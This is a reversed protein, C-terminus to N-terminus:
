LMTRALMLLIPEFADSISTEDFSIEVRVRAPALRGTARLVNQVDRRRDGHRVRLVIVFQDSRRAIPRQAYELGRPVSRHLPDDHRRRDRSDDEALPTRSCGKVSSSQVSSVFRPSM